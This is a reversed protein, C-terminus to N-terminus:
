VFSTVCQAVTPLAGLSAICLIRTKATRGALAPGHSSWMRRSGMTRWGCKAALPPHYVKVPM